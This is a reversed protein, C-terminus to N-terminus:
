ISKNSTENKNNDMSLEYEAGTIFKQSISIDWDYRKNRRKPDSLASITPSQRTEERIGLNLDLTPDFDAEKDFIFQERVRSNYSQVSISINNELVRKVTEALTIPLLGNAELVSIPIFTLYFLYILFTSFLINKM